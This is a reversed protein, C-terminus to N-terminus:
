NEQNRLARSMKSPRPLIIVDRVGRIRLLGQRLESHEETRSADDWIFAIMQRYGSGEQLYTSADAAIEQIVNSFIQRGGPRLFKVEIILELSPIALDSRPTHHGLSKLWEEDDLDPFLPALIVWLIDQVHYENEIDWRAAVSRPTRPETEWVWRRMSRQIDHLVQGVDAVTVSGLRLNSSDRLLVTLVSLQVAARTMGDPLGTLSAIVNWAALKISDGWPILGKAALVVQLDPSIQGVPESTTISLAAAILSENWDIPRRSAISRRLLDVLWANAAAQQTHDLRIIGCAIGLLGLGDVEFTLPRGPTFYQRERLWILAEGFAAAFGRDLNAAYGLVAAYATQRAPGDAAAAEAALAQLLPPQSLQGSQIWSSFARAHPPQRPDDASAAVLTDHLSGLLDRVLVV